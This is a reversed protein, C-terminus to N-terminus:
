RGLEPLAPIMADSMVFPHDTARPVVGAKTSLFGSFVIGTSGFIWDVDMDPPPACGPGVSGGNAATMAGSATMKCFAEDRENFDGTMVVPFGAAHLDNIHNIEIATAVDRWRENNGWRGTTAPNHTNVFYVDQGSALNRLRVSPIPVRSGHFYPIQITSASVLEWTDTRWAISNRVARPDGSLGPYVGWAGGTQGVFSRYQSEEFEQLGVVDVDYTRLVSVAYSMRTPASAWGRKNGGAGTHSAGLVNFTSVRFQTPVQQVVKETKHRLARGVKGVKQPKIMPARIVRQSEPASPGSSRDASAQPRTLAVDAAADSPSRDQPHFIALVSVVVGLIGVVAITAIAAGTREDPDRSDAHKSM